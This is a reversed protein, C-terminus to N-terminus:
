GVQEQKAEREMLGSIADRPDLGEFLIGHVARAIPMEVDHRAALDCLSRTTPVGEVVSATSALIDDLHEGRGLQEGCTRNRGHPCFCTTALDGVGAIGFFTERRAGLEVGLRVIEALGRALLASKANYGVGLGDVLGAAIAIVNKAAGAIEVGTLDDHTYVRFWSVNFADQVLRAVAGDESAAVATAPLRAAMERAITPGSLACMPWPSGSRDVIVQQMIETPLLLTTAEIGKAVTVVPCPVLGPRAIRTWVARIYQTPIANVVLDTGDLLHDVDSTVEVADPLRFDPLRTPSMRTTRLPEVADPSPCWMRVAAGQSVLLDALVLGMQGDGLMTVHVTM